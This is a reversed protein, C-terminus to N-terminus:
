FTYPKMEPRCQISGIYFVSLDEVPKVCMNKMIVLPILSGGVMVNLVLILKASNRERRGWM